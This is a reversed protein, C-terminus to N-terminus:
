MRVIQCDTKLVLTGSHWFNFIYTLGPHCQGSIYICVFLYVYICIFLSALLTEYLVQNLRMM